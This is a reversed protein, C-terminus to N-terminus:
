SNSDQLLSCRGDPISDTTINNSEILDSMAIESQILSTAQNWDEHLRRKFESRINDKTNEILITWTLASLLGAVATAVLLEVLTFGPEFAKYSITKAKIQDSPKTMTANQNPIRQVAM